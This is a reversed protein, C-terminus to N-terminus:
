NLTFPYTVIQAKSSLPFTMPQVVGRVCGLLGHDILYAPAEVRM